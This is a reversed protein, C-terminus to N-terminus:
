TLQTFCRDAIGGLAYDRYLGFFLARTRETWTLAMPTAVRHVQQTYGGEYIRYEAWMGPYDKTCAVEVVPVRPAAAFRRVRNRHTHGAFYGAIAPHRALVAVLRESDDPNIGFYNANRDPDAPDWPHHHGFVLVPDTAEAAVVDLWDLQEAALRGNEQRPHVTDLVALVAGRVPVAYPAGQVALTDDRMADHNGRVHHLRAGLQGYCDLFAQYQEPSGDETLDGKVIVVDPDLELMEAVVGRNMTEPYPPEGPEARLIPGVEPDSEWVGCVEEGFHVDNATAITATHAGAPRALTTAAEPLYEGPAAGAVAIPYTTAPELGRVTVLHFPGTTEVITDGIRTEVVVGPATAAFVTIEDIGVATLEAHDIVGLM